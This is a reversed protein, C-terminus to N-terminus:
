NNLIKKCEIWLAPHIGRNKLNIYNGGENINGGLGVFMQTNNASGKTRM